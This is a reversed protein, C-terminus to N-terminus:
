KARIPVQTPSNTRAHPTTRSHDTGAATPMHTTAMTIGGTAAITAL